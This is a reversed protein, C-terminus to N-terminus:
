RQNDLGFSSCLRLLENTSTIFKGFASFLQYLDSTKWEKPFTVHLVHDRKPQVTLCIKASLKIASIHVFYWCNRLDLSVQPIM